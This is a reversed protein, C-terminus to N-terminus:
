NGPNGISVDVSRPPHPKNPPPLEIAPLPIRRGVRGLWLLEECVDAFTDPVPDIKEMIRYNGGLKMELIYTHGGLKFPGMGADPSMKWLDPDSCHSQILQWDEPRLPTSASKKETVRPTYGATLYDVRTVSTPQFVLLQRPNESVYWMRVVDGPYDKLPKQGLNQLLQEHHIRHDPFDASFSDPLIQKQPTVRTAAMLLAVLVLVVALQKM